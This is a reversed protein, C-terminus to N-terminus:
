GCRRTARMPNCTFMTPNRRDGRGLELLQRITPLEEGTEWQALREAKVGLKHAALDLDLGTEQRAWVLVSPTVLPRPKPRRSGYYGESKM